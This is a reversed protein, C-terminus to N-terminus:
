LCACIGKHEIGVALAAQVQRAVQTLVSSRAQLQEQANDSRESIRIPARKWQKQLGVTLALASKVM